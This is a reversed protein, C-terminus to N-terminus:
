PTQEEDDTSEGTHRVTTNSSTSSLSENLHNNHIYPSSLSVTIIEDEDEIDPVGNLDVELATTTKNAKINKQEAAQMEVDFNAAFLADKKSKFVYEDSDKQELAVMRQKMRDRAEGIASRQPAEFPLITAVAAAVEQQSNM